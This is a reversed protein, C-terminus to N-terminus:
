LNGQVRASRARLFRGREDRAVCGIGVQSGGLFCAANTNVKIWGILSKGWVRRGTQYSNAVKNKEERAKNWEAFM